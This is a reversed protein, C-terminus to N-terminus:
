SRAAAETGRVADSEIRAVLRRSYKVDMIAVTAVGATIATWLLAL